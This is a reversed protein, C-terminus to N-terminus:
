FTQVFHGGSKNALLRDVIDRERYRDMYIAKIKVVNDGDDLDYAYFCRVGTERVFERVGDLTSFHTVSGDFGIEVFYGVRVRAADELRGIM